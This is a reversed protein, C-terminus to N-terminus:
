CSMRTCQLRAPSAFASNKYGSLGTGPEDMRDKVEDWLGAQDMRNGSGRRRGMVTLHELIQQVPFVRMRPSEAQAPCPSVIRSCAGSVFRLHPGVDLMPEQHELTDESEAIGQKVLRLPVIRGM